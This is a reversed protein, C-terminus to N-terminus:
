LHDHQLRFVKNLAAPGHTHPETCENDPILQGFAFGEAARCHVRLSIWLQRFSIPPDLIFLHKAADLSLWYLSEKLQSWFLWILKNIMYFIISFFRFTEMRKWAITYIYIIKGYLIIHFIYNFNWFKILIINFNLNGYCIKNRIFDSFTSM